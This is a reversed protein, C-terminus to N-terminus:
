IILPNSDPLTFFKAQGTNINLVCISHIGARVAGGTTGPNLITQCGSIKISPRHTHGHFIYDPPTSEQSSDFSYLDHVIGILKGEIRINVQHEVKNLLNFQKARRAVEAPHTDTNGIALYLEFGAFLNLLDPNGLDGCHFITTIGHQKFIEIAVRTNEKHNHTDSLIGVVNRQNNM